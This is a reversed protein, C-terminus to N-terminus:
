VHTMQRPGSFFVSACKWFALYPKLDQLSKLFPLPFDLVLASRNLVPQVVSSLAHACYLDWHSLDAVASLFDNFLFTDQIKWVSSRETTLPALFTLNPRLFFSFLCFFGLVPTGRPSSFCFSGDTSVAYGREHHSPSSRQRCDTFGDTHNKTKQIIVTLLCYHSPCSNANWYTLRLSSRLSVFTASNSILEALPVCKILFTCSFSIFLPRYHTNVSFDEKIIHVLELYYTRGGSTRKLELM